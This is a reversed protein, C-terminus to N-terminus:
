FGSTFSHSSAGVLNSGGLSDGGFLPTPISGRPTVQTTNTISANLAKYGLPISPNPRLPMRTSAHSPTVNKTPITAVHLVMTSHAMQISPKSHSGILFQDAVTIVNNTMSTFHNLPITYSVYIDYVQSEMPRDLSV